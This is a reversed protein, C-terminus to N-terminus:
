AQFVKDCFCVFIVIFHHLLSVNFVVVISDAYFVFRNAIAQTRRRKTVRGAKDPINPSESCFRIKCVLSSRHGQLSVASKKWEVTCKKLRVSCKKFIVTRKKFLVACKKIYSCVEQISSLKEQIYSRVEQM